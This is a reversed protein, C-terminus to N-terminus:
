NQQYRREYEIIVNFKFFRSLFWLDFPAPSAIEAEDEPLKGVDHLGAATEAVVRFYRKMDEFMELTGVPGHGPVVHHIDLLAISDLYASWLEPDGDGLWPQNRVFLLDGLFATKEAPMYLFLDSETHGKGYSLLVATRSEGVIDLRDNFTVDPLTFNILDASAVMGEFYGTWMITEALQHPSMTSRDLSRYTNLRDPAVTKHYEAEEPLHEAMLKRTVATCILTADEFVQNGGVHDNHYHSNVVYKVRHGTLHEAAKKLDQAAQITMFPDFVLTADGLDVIGANCIAYGGNTAIAAYVGDALKHITFHDSHFSQAPCGVSLLWAAAFLVLYNKMM